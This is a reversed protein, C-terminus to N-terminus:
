FKLLKVVRVIESEKTLWEPFGTQKVYIQKLHIQKTGGEGNDNIELVKLLHLGYRSVVMKTDDPKADKLATRFEPLLQDFPLMGSDGAFDKNAEDQTYATAVDDFSQGGDLKGQLEKMKAYSDKNLSEQKNFWILLQSQLLEQHIVQSKFEDPGM